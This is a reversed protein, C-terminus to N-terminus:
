SATVMFPTDIDMTVPDVKDAIANGFRERVRSLAEPLSALVSRAGENIGAGAIVPAAVFILEPCMSHLDCDGRRALAANNGKPCTYGFDAATLPESKNSLLLPQKMKNKRAGALYAM